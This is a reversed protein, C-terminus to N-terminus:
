KYEKGAFVDDKTEHNKDPGASRVIFGPGTRGPVPNVEEVVYPTIWLDKSTDRGEAKSQMQKRIYECWEYESLYPLKGDNLIVKDTYITHSISNVEHQTLVIKVLNMLYTMQEGGIGTAQNLIFLTVGIGILKVFM